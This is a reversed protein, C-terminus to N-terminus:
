RAPRTRRARLLATIEDAVAAPLAAEGGILRVRVFEDSRRRLFDRAAPASALPGPPVLLLSGGLRGVAAGATLADPFRAGTVLYLDDTFAGERITRETLRAGTDYRERGAIREVSRMGALARLQEEVAASVVATGGAIIVRDIRQEELAQVTEAPLRDPLTLLIPRPTGGVASPFASGGLPGAALADPFADGGGPRAGVALLAQRNGDGIELRDAVLRATDFRNRGGIRRVTGVGLAELRGSLGAGLVAEGGVLIVEDPELRRLEEVTAPPLDGPLGLLLPAGLSIALPTAALADPFDAGSALVVTGAGDPFALRSLAAATGFRDTGAVREVRPMSQVNRVPVRPTPRASFAEALVRGDFGGPPPNLGLLWATTPALDINRAQSPHETSPDLELDAGVVQGRRLGEWGGSVVVPIPLTPPHGHNGPIPNAIEPPASTSHGVRWGPECTVVLEGTHDGGLAWTPHVRAVTHRDGGDLPNPRIYLAEDIGEAALAIRRMRRLREAAQPDDPSRLAFLCAGGNAAALVEGALLEDAEFAPALNVGGGVGFRASRFSWDMSHDATVLVVTHEWADDARLQAELRALAQDASQLAVHRLVPIRGVGPLPQTLGGTEDIHGVRDVDGLNLFLFDPELQQSRLVAETGTELDNASDVVPIATLPTNSQTVDQEGDGTRDHKALEAVYTKAGITVSRYDPAQRRMLTPISDAKFYRRDDSIRLSLTPVGNGPMGHRDPRMGCLMSAHNTTTEAVMHARGHPYYTGEEAWRALTSMLPVEDARLGDVILMYVRVSGTRAEASQAWIGVPAAGAVLGGALVASSKLFTRRQV